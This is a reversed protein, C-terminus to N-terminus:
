MCRWRMPPMEGMTEGLADPAPPKTARWEVAHRGAATLRCKGSREILGKGKLVHLATGVSARNRGIAIQLEEATHPNARLLALVQKQVGLPEM